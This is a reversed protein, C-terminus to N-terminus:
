AAKPSSSRRVMLITLVIVLLLALLWVQYIASCIISAAVVRHLRGQSPGYLLAAFVVLALTLRWEGTVMALFLGAVGLVVGFALPSISRKPRADVRVSSQAQGSLHQSLQFEHVIPAAIGKEACINSSRTTVWEKANALFRQAVLGNTPIADDLAFGFQIGKPADKM